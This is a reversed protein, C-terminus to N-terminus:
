EDIAADLDAAKLENEEASKRLKEIKEEARKKNEKTQTEQNELFELIKGDLTNIVGEVDDVSSPIDIKLKGLQEILDFDLKLVKKEAAKRAKQKPKGMVMFSEERQDKKTLLVAGEPLSSDVSRGTSPAAATETVPKSTLYQKFHKVLNSCLNIEQTFAPIEANEREILAENALREDREAKKRLTYEANKREREAKQFEFYADMKEKHQTRLDKLNAYEADMETKINKRDNFMDSLSGQAEKRKNEFENLSLKADDLQRNIDARPGDLAYVLSRLDDISKKENDVTSQQSAVLTALGEM